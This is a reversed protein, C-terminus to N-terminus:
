FGGFLAFPKNVRHAIHVHSLVGFGNIYAFHQLGFSAKSMAFGDLALKPSWSLAAPLCLSPKRQAKNQPM